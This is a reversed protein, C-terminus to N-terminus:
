VMPRPRTRGARWNRWHALVLLVAGTVTLLREWIALPHVLAGAALLLFGLLAIRWPWPDGHGAHGRWLAHASVPVAALLLAWHLWEPGHWVDGLQLSLVPILGLGVPLLLCHILCIGSVAAALADGHRDVAEADSDAAM